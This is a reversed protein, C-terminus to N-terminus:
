EGKSEMLKECLKLLGGTLLFFVVTLGVYILDM